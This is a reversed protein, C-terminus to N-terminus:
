KVVVLKRVAVDNGAQLRIFYIGIPLDSLDLGEEYEGPVLVEDILRDIRVGSISYLDIYTFRSDHLTFRLRTFNSCPNPYIQIITQDPIQSIGSNDEVTQMTIRSTEYGPFTAEIVSECALTADISASVYFEIFEQGAPIIVSSPTTLCSTASSSIDVVLDETPTPIVELKIKTSDNLPVTNVTTNLVFRSVVANTLLIWAHYTPENTRFYFSISDGFLDSWDGTWSIPAIVWHYDGTAWDSIQIFGGSFGGEPMWELTGDGGSSWGEQSNNFYSSYKSGVLINDVGGIDNGTHMETRIKFSTINELVSILTASDVNFSEPTIPITYLEFTDAASPPGYDATLEIPQSSQANAWAFSILLISFCSLIKIKM